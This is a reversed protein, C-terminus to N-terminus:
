SPVAFGSRCAPHHHLARVGCSGAVLGSNGTAQACSPCPLAQPTVVFTPTAACITAGPGKAAPTVNWIGFEAMSVTCTGSWAKQCDLTSPKGPEAFFRGLENHVTTLARASSAVVLIPGM